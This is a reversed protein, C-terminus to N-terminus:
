MGNLWLMAGDEFSFGLQLGLTPWARFWYIDGVSPIDGTPRSFSALALGDVLKYRVRVLLCGSWIECRPFNKLNGKHMLDRSGPLM